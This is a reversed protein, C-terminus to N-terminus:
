IKKAIFEPNQSYRLADEATIKQKKVLNILSNDMSCMGNSASSNIVTNFQHTKSERIMNQIANNVYMIEFAPVNGGGIAPILQQCVVAKLVMSLQFRIQPQQNPPFVDIVRDITNTANSTHLTSIILHGTESATIATQITEFDRMEGLLVVDPSQRLSARLASLYSTTDTHIERQSIISKKNSHLYEIPDELTIIHNNYHTNITDIMCALTTTKGSGAPGAFLILGKTIHAIDMVDQPINLQQYSPLGFMIIRIVAALSGRQQFTCVRFRSLGSITLSFDDDGSMLFPQIERKAQKYIEEIFDKSDEPSIKKDTQPLIQGDIKYSLFQGAIIFIDSAKKEVAQQLIKDLKM